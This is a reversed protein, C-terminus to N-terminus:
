PNMANYEAFERERESAYTKGAATAVASRRTSPNPDVAIGRKPNAPKAPAANSAQAQSQEREWLLQAVAFDRKYDELVASVSDADSALLRDQYKAPQSACWQNFEASKAIEGADPHAQQLASLQETQYERVQAREVFQNMQALQARTEALQEQVAHVAQHTDPDIDRLRDVSQRPDPRGARELEQLKRRAADLERQTPALQGHMADHKRQLGAARQEAEAAKALREDVTKRTSEPLDNYGPFPEDVPKSEQAVPAPRSQERETPAPDSAANAASTDAQDREEADSIEVYDAFQEERSKEIM